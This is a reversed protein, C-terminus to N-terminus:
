IDLIDLNIIGPQLDCPSTKEGAAATGDPFICLFHLPRSEAWRFPRYRVASLVGREAIRSRM